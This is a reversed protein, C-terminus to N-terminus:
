LVHLGILLVKHWQWVFSCLRRYDAPRDNLGKNMGKHMRIHVLVRVFWAFMDLFELVDLPCKHM